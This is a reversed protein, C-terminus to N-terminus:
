GPVEGSHETSCSSASGKKNSEKTSSLAGKVCGKQVQELPHTLSVKGAKTDSKISNQPWGASRFPITAGGPLRVKLSTTTKFPSVATNHRFTDNRKRQPSFFQACGLSELAPTASVHMQVPAPQCLHLGYIQQWTESWKETQKTDKKERAKGKASPNRGKEDVDVKANRMKGEGNASQTRGKEDVNVKAKRGKGQM